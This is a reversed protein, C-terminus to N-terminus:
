NHEFIIEKDPYFKKLITEVTKEAMTIENNYNEARLQELIENAKSRIKERSMNDMEEDNFTFWGYNVDLVQINKEDIIPEDVQLPPLKVYITKKDKEEIVIENTNLHVYSEAVVRYLSKSNTLIGKVDVDAIFQYTYKEVILDGTRRFIESLEPTKKSNTQVFVFALFIALIILIVVYVKKM